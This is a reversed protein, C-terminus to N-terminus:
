QHQHQGTRRQLHRDAPPTRAAGPQALAVALSDFVASSGRANISTLAKDVAAAPDTFDVLRRVRMDFTILRLRDRTGLDSRLQKLAARLDDLVAGTVSASVDLLVTVDIPLKEYSVDTIQQAVGNDLLEFDAATLGIVPRRNQRM